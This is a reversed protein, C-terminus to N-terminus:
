PGIDDSPGHKGGGEPQPPPTCREYGDPNGSMERRDHYYIDILFMPYGQADTSVTYYEVFVPLEHKMRVLKPQGVKVIGEVDVDEQGDSKALYKALELPEHVRMCGHSYSRVDHEFYQKKPTDHMYTNHKNPFIFKVLGLANTPGPNQRVVPIGDKKKEVVEYNRAELWGEEEMYPMIEEQVIREPVFWSPNLIYYELKSMLSPTANPYAWRSTKPDCVRNNKGIVVKFRTELKHDRYVEGHFDPLNISVYDPEGEYRSTRLRKINLEMQELRRAVPVNMSRWLIHDPSGKISIQHTVRYRKMAEMLAEDVVDSVKAQKLQALTMLQQALEPSAARKRALDEEDIAVLDRDLYGELMLRKRLTAVAPGKKGKALGVASVTPWGGLKAIEKYRKRWILLPAYDKHKPELQRMIPEVGDAKAKALEGFTQALRDYIIKKSGGAEKMERWEFRELNFHKMDRAYRLVADAIYLEHKAGIPALSALAKRFTQVQATIRPLPSPLLKANEQETALPDPGALATFLQERTSPKSPDLKHTKIWDILAEAENPELKIPKWHVEDSALAELKKGAEEVRKLKYDKVDLLHDDAQSLVKIAAVGKATPGDFQSFIKRHKREAYLEQFLDAYKIGDRVRENWGRQAEADLLKRIAHASAGTDAEQRLPDDIGEVLLQEVLQRADDRLAVPPENNHLEQRCAGLSLAFITLASACLLVRASSSARPRTPRPRQQM